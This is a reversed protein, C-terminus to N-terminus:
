LSDVRVNRGFREAGEESKWGERVAELTLSVVKM